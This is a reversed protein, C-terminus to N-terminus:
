PLRTATPEEKSVQVRVSNPFTAFSFKMGQFNSGFNAVAQCLDVGLLQTAYEYTNARNPNMMLGESSFHIDFVSYNSPFGDAAWKMMKSTINSNNSSPNALVQIAATDLITQQTIVSQTSMLDSITMIYAAM